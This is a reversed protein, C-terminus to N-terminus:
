GAQTSIWSISQAFDRVAQNYAEVNDLNCAHGAGLVSQV